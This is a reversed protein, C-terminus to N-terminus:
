GKKFGFMGIKYCIPNKATGPRPHLRFGLYLMTRFVQLGYSEPRQTFQNYGRGTSLKNFVERIEAHIRSQWHRSNLAQKMSWDPHTELRELAYTYLNFSGIIFGFPRDLDFFDWLFPSKPPCLPNLNYNPCGDPHEPYPRKCWSKVKDLVVLSGVEINEKIEIKM